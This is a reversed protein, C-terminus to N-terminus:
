SQFNKKNIQQMFSEVSTNLIKDEPFDMEKLLASAETFNGIDASYHADSGMVVSVDQLMCEEAIERIMTSGGPRSTTPKLSSNNIELLTGTEKSASVVEKIDFNYRIDGPHGIVNISKNNMAQIITETHQKVTGFELCPPHLSAIVFELQSLVDEEVDIAGKYDIINTEIGKLIRVGNIYEPLIILNYFHFIHPAGPMSPAHDTMALLKLNKESAVRVNEELSSYAHGSSITHSHIDLEYKM